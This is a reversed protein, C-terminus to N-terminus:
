EGAALDAVIKEFRPDGRLSDLDPDLLSGYSPGFPMKSVKELLELARTKDGVKAYISALNSLLYVGDIADQDVPLLEVSRRGERIAEEKRDMDADIDALVMLAKADEPRKTVTAAARERGRELAIRAKAGDGLRKLISGELAERPKFGTGAFYPLRYEGLARQAALYDRQLLAFFLRWQTLENPDAGKAAEGALVAQARRLDGSQDYDVSARYIAWRFNTANWSLVGDLLRRLEPYSRQGEYNYALEGISSMNRPDLTVAQKLHRTSEALHGQRREIAALTSFVVPDNPLFRQALALEALAPAYDRQGHYYFLARTRHVEGGDPSLHAGADLAKRALELRAATPDYSHWYLDLHVEALLCFASVFAPDHTVAEELLAISRKMAEENYETQHIEKARLYLDYAAVDKTPKEHMAAKEKPSLKAQLEDAIAKAIESQIAFVDDLSRDFVQAWLHGDTRADILQANVRVKGGARQVSGELLHAVGLQQGIERLNRAGGSRYQMVSTRSIVKLDAIRALDSLIEDQVGDTFYANQKDDSLNEFPLVAISKEPIAAAVGPATSGSTTSRGATAASKQRLFQFAFLGAAIVGVVVTIAVLKRGSRPTISGNPLADEARKIGEPTLEFAWALILALPFGLIIIAVFVKMVWLPAEFTPFLISAAQILLWAVVGYAIAVKYVHRRKLEILFNRANM